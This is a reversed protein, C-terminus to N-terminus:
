FRSKKLDLYKSKYKLYKMKYYMDSNVGDKQLMGGTKAASKAFPIPYTPDLYAITEKVGPFYRGVYDNGDDIVQINYHSKIKDTIDEYMVNYENQKTTIQPYAVDKFDLQFGFSSPGYAGYKHRFNFWHLNNSEDMCKIFIQSRGFGLNFTYAETAHLLYKTNDSEIIFYNTPLDPLIDHEDDYEIIEYDNNVNGISAM